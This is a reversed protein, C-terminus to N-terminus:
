AARYHEGFENMRYQNEPKGMRMVTRRDFEPYARGRCVPCRRSAGGQNKLAREEWRTGRWLRAIVWDGGSAAVHRPLNAGTGNAHHELRAALNADRAWGTYHKAVGRQDKRRRNRRPGFAEDFHLMYITGEESDPM